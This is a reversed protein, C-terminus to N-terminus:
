VVWLALGRIVKQSAEKQMPMAKRAPIRDVNWLGLPIDFQEDTFKDLRVLSIKRWNDPEENKKWKQSLCRELTQDTPMPVWCTMRVFCIDLKLFHSLRQTRSFPLWTFSSSSSSSSSSSRRSTPLPPQLHVQTLLLHLPLTTLPSISFPQPALLPAM